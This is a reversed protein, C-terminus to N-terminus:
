EGQADEAKVAHFQINTIAVRDDETSPYVSMIRVQVQRVVGPKVARRQFGDNNDLTFEATAGNDFVLHVDKPRAHRSFADGPAGPLFGVQRLDVAPDFPVTLVHGPGTDNALWYNTPDRNTANAAPHLPDESSASPPLPTVLVLEPAFRNRLSQYLEQGRELVSLRAPGVAAVVGLLAAIAILRRSWRRFATRGRRAQGVAGKVGQGRRGPREGAAVKKERRRFVRRWFPVKAVKAEELSAACRRCFRREPKNPEGCQGCVLDGPEIVRSPATKKTPPRPRPPAPQQATPQRAAITDADEAVPVPDASQVPQARTRRPRVPPAAVPAPPTAAEPPPKAVMAAARRAREEAEAAARRVAEEAARREEEARKREEAAAHAREAAEREREAAAAAAREEEVRRRAQEEERRRREEAEAAARREDEERRAAEAAAREDASRQAAAAEEAEAAARREAEEAARREEEARWREEAAQREQEAQEKRQREAEELRAREAAAEREREAALRERELAAAERQEAAAREIEAAEAREREDAAAQEPDVQTGEGPATLLAGEADADGEGIVMSKVREVLGPRAVEEPEHEVEEVAVEEDVHIGVHPLYGPCGGCFEDDDDNQYGCQQCVIM